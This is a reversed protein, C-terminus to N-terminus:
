TFKPYILRELTDILVNSEIFVIAVQTHLFDNIKKGETILDFRFTIFEEIKADIFLEKYIGNKNPMVVHRIIFTQKKLPTLNATIKQSLYAQVVAKSYEINDSKEILDPYFDGAIRRTVDIIYAKENKIILQAHFMGDVLHLEKAMVELESKLQNLISKKTEAPYATTVLYPNLYVDDKGFFGYMVKQNIFFLSYAYLEGEIFEELFIENSYEQVVDLANALEQSNQVVKVGRGGSLNTPKVVIPFELDEVSGDYYYGKPTTINHEFCFKKFKWKNHILQAVELTDFNGIRLEHSLKVTNLYSQEGCGPLLYEIGEDKIIKRIATFDNFDKLYYKDSYKHGLYEKCAGLTIVYFGLEHSAKILPIDRHSGGLILVKKM